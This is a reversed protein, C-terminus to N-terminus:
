EDPDAQGLEFKADIAYVAEGVVGVKLIMVARAGRKKL